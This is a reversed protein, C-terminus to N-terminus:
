TIQESAKTATIQAIDSIGDLQIVAVALPRERLAAMAMSEKCRRLFGRRDLQPLPREDSGYRSDDRSSASSQRIICLALEPGRASALAEDAIADHELLEATKTGTALTRCML